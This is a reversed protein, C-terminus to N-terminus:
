RAQVDFGRAQADLIRWYKEVEKKPGFHSGAVNRYDDIFRRYLGGAAAAKGVYVPIWFDAGEARLDPPRICIVYTGADQM